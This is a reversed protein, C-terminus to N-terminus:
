PLHKKESNAKRLPEARPVWTSKLKEFNFLTPSGKKKQIWRLDAQSSVPFQPSLRTQM